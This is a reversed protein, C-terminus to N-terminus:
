APLPKGGLWTPRRPPFIVFTGLVVIACGIHMSDFVYEPCDFFLLDHFLRGMFSGAAMDKGAMARLQREWRTLPCVWGMVAELAVVAIAILHTVRFWINRAWRCRLLLGLWIALQGVVVYAVYAGHLVVVIDALIGYWM